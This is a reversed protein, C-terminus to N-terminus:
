RASPFWIVILPPIPHSVLQVIIEQGSVEHLIYFCFSKKIVLSPQGAGVGSLWSTEISITCIDFVSLIIFKDKVSSKQM